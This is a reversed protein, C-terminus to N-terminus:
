EPVMEARQAASTVTLDHRTDRHHRDSALGQRGLRYGRVALRRRDSDTFQLREQGLQRRRVRNEEMLYALAQRKRVIEGSPQFPSCWRSLRRTSEGGSDIEVPWITHGDEDILDHSKVACLGHTVALATRDIFLCWTFTQRHLVRRPRTLIDNTRCSIIAGCYIASLDDGDAVPSQNSVVPKAGNAARARALRKRPQLASNAM